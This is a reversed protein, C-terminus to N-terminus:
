GIRRTRRQGEYDPQLAELHKIRAEFDEARAHTWDALKVGKADSEALAEAWQESADERQDLLRWGLVFAGAGLCLVVLPWLVSV